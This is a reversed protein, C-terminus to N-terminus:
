SDAPQRERLNTGENGDTEERFNICAFMGDTYLQGSRTAVGQSDPQAPTRKLRPSRCLGYHEELYVWLACRGCCVVHDM